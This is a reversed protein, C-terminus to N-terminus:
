FPILLNKVLFKIIFNPFIGVPVLGVTDIFNNDYDNLKDISNTINCEKSHVHNENCEKSHVHNEDCEKSHVHNEDCEKSHVHNEDCEKSHVHNNRSRLKFNPSCCEDADTESSPVICSNEDKTNYFKNYYKNDYKNYYKNDYKNYYKNYYKNDYKRLLVRDENCISSEDNCIGSEDYHCECNPTQKRPELDDDTLTEFILHKFLMYHYKIFGNDLHANNYKIFKFALENWFGKSTRRNESVEKMTKLKKNFSGVNISNISNIINDNISNVNRINNSILNTFNSHYRKDVNENFSRVIDINNFILDTFNSNASQDLKFFDNTKENFSDNIDNYNKTLIIDYLERPTVADDINYAKKLLDIVINNVNENVSNIFPNNYYEKKLLNMSENIIDCPTEINKGKKKENLITTKQLKTPLFFGYTSTFLIFLIFVNKM